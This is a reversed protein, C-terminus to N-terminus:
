GSARASSSTGATEGYEGELRCLRRFEATLDEEVAEHAITRLHDMAGRCIANYIASFAAHELAERKPVRINKAGLREAADDALARASEGAIAAVTEYLNGLAPISRFSTFLAEMPDKKELAANAETDEVSLVAQLFYALAQAAEVVIGGLYANKFKKRGYTHPRLDVCVAVANLSYYLEELQGQSIGQENHIARCCIGFDHGAAHLEDLTARGLAHREAAAVALRPSRDEPRRLELFHLAKAACRCAFLRAAESFGKAAGLARLAHCLGAMDLIHELPFVKKGARRVGLSQLLENWLGRESSSHFQKRVDALSVCIGTCDRSNGSKEM